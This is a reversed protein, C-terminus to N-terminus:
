FRADLPEVRQDVNMWARVAQSLEVVLNRRPLGEDRGCVVAPTFEHRRHKAQRWGVDQGFNRRALTATRGASPSLVGALGAKRSACPLKLYESSPLSGFIVDPPQALSDVTCWAGRKAFSVYFM